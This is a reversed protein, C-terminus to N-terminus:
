EDFLAAVRLAVIQEEGPSLTIPNLMLGDSLPGVAISPEGQRLRAAAERPGFGVEAANWTLYVRPVERPLVGDTGPFVRRARCVHLPRFAQIWHAVAAEWRDMDVTWDHELFLEVARVLGAIEEKGVKGPRGVAAHPNANAACAAVLARRGLVLGTSQPGRLMKGGSFVVLDAGMRNFLTLHEPPPLEAAADVIVPVNFHHATAIVEPLGLVSPMHTFHLVAATDATIVQELAARGSRTDAEVIQAGALVAMREWPNRQSAEIVVQNPIGASVPLRAIRDPDSGAIVAATSVVIGNAAGSTICAAEVGILGAIYEGARSLLELLDAFSGAAEAMAEVVRRDMLSGGLITVTGHANIVPRVGLREFLTM